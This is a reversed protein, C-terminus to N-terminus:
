KCVEHHYFVHKTFDEWLVKGKKLKYDQRLHSCDGFLRLFKKRYNRRTILDAENSGEKVVWFSTPPHEDYVEFPRSSQVVLDNYCPETHHYVKLKSGFNLNVQQLLAVNGSPLIVQDFILYEKKLSDYSEKFKKKSNNGGHNVSFFNDMHSVKLRFGEIESAYLIILSGEANKARLSGIEGEENLEFGVLQEEVGTGDMRIAIADEDFNLIYSPPSFEQGFLFATSFVLSILSAINKKM